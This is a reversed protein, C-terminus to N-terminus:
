HQIQVVRVHEGSAVMGGEFNRTRVVYWVKEGPRGQLKIAEGEYPPFDGQHEIPVRTYVPNLVTQGMADVGNKAALAPVNVLPLTSMGAGTNGAGSRDLIPDAKSDTAQYNLLLGSAAITNASSLATIEGGTLVRNYILFRQALVQTNFTGISTFWKAAFSPSSITVANSGSLTDNVYVKGTTGDFTVVLWQWSTRLDIGSLNHDAVPLSSTTEHFEALVAQSPRATSIRAALTFTTLSQSPSAVQLSGSGDGLFVPNSGYDLEWLFDNDPTQWLDSPAQEFWAHKGGGSVDHIKIGARESFPYRTGDSLTLDWLNGATFSIKGAAITPTSTGQSSSVTESGTLHPASLYATGDLKVATGLMITLILCLTRM